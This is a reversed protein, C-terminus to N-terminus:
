AAPYADAMFAKDIESINLNTFIMFDGVTWSQQITYHMISKPDYETYISEDAAARDLYWLHLSKRTESSQIDDEDPDDTLGYEAYLVSKNWPINATPNTQEHEAGLMHGFEHMVKAAFYRAHIARHPWLKMTPEDPYLRADTGVFSSFTGEESLIRIDGEEGDVFDFKLNIHPLWNSAAAITADKFEQTGNLFAIRLTSGATWFKSPNKKAWM